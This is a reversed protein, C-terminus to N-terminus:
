GRDCLLATQCRVCLLAQQMPKLCHEHLQRWSSGRSLFLWGVSFRGQRLDFHEAVALKSVREAGV